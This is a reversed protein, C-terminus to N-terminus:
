TDNSEFGLSRIANAGGIYSIEFGLLRRTEFALRVDWSGSIQTVDRTSSQAFATVGGGGALTM